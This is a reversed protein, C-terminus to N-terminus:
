KILLRRITALNQFLRIGLAIIAALYLNVGLRDGMFTVLAALVTNSLFGTVFLRDDFTRELLARVGGLTSDLAALMAISLYRAYVPPVDYRLLSGLIVGLLLGLFPMSLYARRRHAV